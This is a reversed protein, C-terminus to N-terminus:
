RKRKILLLGAFSLLLLPLAYIFALTVRSVYGADGSIRIKVDDARQEIDVNRGRVLLRHSNVGYPTCTVLTCYDHDESIELDEIEKPLVVATRDVEYTLKRDLVHLIFRDGESLEDIRTFLTASPLGTHGSLVAHTGLGGTPLSSGEVHGVGKQMASEDTGHYIPLMVKISPIEVYGMIGTGSADLLSRYRESEEGTPSYRARNKKLSENYAEAADFFSSYDEKTLASVSESYSSIAGAQSRSNLYDSVTPYLLLSFGALLLLVVLIDTLRKKM